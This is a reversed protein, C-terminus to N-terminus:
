RIFLLALFPEAKKILLAGSFGTRHVPIFPADASLLFFLESASVLRIKMLGLNLLMVHHNPEPRKTM